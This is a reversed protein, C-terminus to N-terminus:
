DSAPLQRAEKPVLPSGNAALAGSGAKTCLVELGGDDTYRKGVLAPDAAVPHSTPSVVGADLGILEVGGCSLQNTDAGPRLVVVQLDCGPCLLRLGTKIV